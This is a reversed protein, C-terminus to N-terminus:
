RKVDTKILDHRLRIHINQDSFLTNRARAIAGQRDYHKSVSATPKELCRM